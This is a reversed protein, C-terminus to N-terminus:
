SEEKSLISLTSTLFFIPRFKARGRAEGLWSSLSVQIFTLTFLMLESSAWAALYRLLVPAQQSRSPM